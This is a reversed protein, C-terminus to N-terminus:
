TSGNQFVISVNRQAVSYRAGWISDASDALHCSREFAAELACGKRAFLGIKAFARRYCHKTKQRAPVSASPMRQFSAVTGTPVRSLDDLRRNVCLVRRGGRVARVSGSGRVHRSPAIMRKRAPPDGPVHNKHLDADTAGAVGPRGGVTVWRPAIRSTGHIATVANLTRSGGLCSM